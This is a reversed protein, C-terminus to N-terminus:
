RGAPKPPQSGRYHKRRTIDPSTLGFSSEKVHILEPMVNVEDLDSGRWINTVRNERGKNGGSLFVRALAGGGVTLLGHLHSILGKDKGTEM